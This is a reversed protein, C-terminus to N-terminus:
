YIISKKINLFLGGPSLVAAAMGANGSSVSEAEEGKKWAASSSKEGM